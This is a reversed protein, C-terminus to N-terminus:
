ERAIEIKRLQQDKRQSRRSSRKANAQNRVRDGEQRAESAADAV